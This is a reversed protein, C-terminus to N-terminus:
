GAGNEIMRRLNEDIRERGFAAAEAISRPQDKSRYRGDCVARRVGDEIGGRVIPYAAKADPREPGVAGSERLSTFSLPRFTRKRCDVEAKQWGGYYLEGAIPEGAAVIRLLRVTRRPGDRAVGATDVFVADRGVAALRLSLPEAQLGLALFLAIV